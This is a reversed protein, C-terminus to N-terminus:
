PRANPSVDVTLMGFTARTTQNANSDGVIDLLPYDSAELVINRFEMFGAAPPSCRPSKQQYQIGGFNFVSDSIKVGTCLAIETCGQTPALCSTAPPQPQCYVQNVPDACKM